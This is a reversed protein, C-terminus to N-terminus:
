GIRWNIGDSFIPVRDTGGGAVVAAFTTANSDSVFARTYAMDAAAPLTDFTYVKLGLAAPLTVTLYRVWEESM